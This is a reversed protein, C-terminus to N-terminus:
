MRSGIIPVVTDIVAPGGGVPNNPGGAVPLLAAFLDPYLISVNLLGEAGISLGTGYVRDPDANHSAIVDAILANLGEMVDPDRWLKNM